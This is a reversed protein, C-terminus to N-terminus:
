YITLIALSSLKTKLESVSLKSKFLAMKLRRGPFDINKKTKERFYFAKALFCNFDSLDNVKFSGITFFFFFFLFRITLQQWEFSM